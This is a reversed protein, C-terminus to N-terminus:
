QNRDTIIEGNQEVGRDLQLMCNGNNDIDLIRCVTHQYVSNKYRKVRFEEHNRYGCVILLQGRALWSSDIPVQKGNQNETLVQKYWSYQGANFKVNIVELDPTLLNVIHKTDDKDVVVGCIQSVHYQHWTRKGRTRTIFQPTEPLDAFHSLGYKDYDINFLEHQGYHYFSTAEFSWKNINEHGVDCGLRHQYEQEFMALNYQALVNPKKLWTKLIDLEPKIAKELAKDVIVIRDDVYYWDKNETMRSQLHEEFWPQAQTTELIYHKKTKHIPDACFFFQKQTVFQKFRYIRWANEDECQIGLNKCQELNALTLSAKTPIITSVYLKALRIRDKELEDFCGAKILKIVKSPKLTTNKGKDQLMNFFSDLTYPRNEIIEQAVELGIGSIGGLGFLIANESEVPTFSIDSHNISPPKVAVKFAQSRYIAKAIKGYAVTDSTESTSNVSLTACNWYCHPYFHYLNMEQLAEVSYPMVHNRSFSYSLQPMLCENWVYDALNSDKCHAYFEKKFEPIQELKKKALIKRMADSQKLTFGSVEPRMVLEMIDEQTNAVGYCHDLTEHLAQIVNEDTVGYRQLEQEWLNNNAKYRIFKDIPQEGEKSVIRMLSNANSLEYLNHPQIKQICQGGVPTIFQFLDIIEGRCCENWMEQNDYDLVDPHLYQDYTDRISGQWKIKDYQLLLSMCTELKDQCETTLSDYKLGGCYDSDEMNWATVYDGRPTIMLSNQEIYGNKFIYIGSAHTSIGSIINEIQQIMHFLDVNYEQSLINIQNQFEAVPKKDTGSDGNMCENLTWQKGREVPVLSALYEAENIDIDLGRCITKIVSKSTETRFTCINLINDEGFVEKLKAIIKPRNQASTDLDVDPFSVRSSNLHRYAPLNWKIPNMQHMDILYMTYYGTVSGRSVGVFGITWCLDVIYDVLNYYASMRDQLSESVKWLEGLEWDIREINEANFEQKKELFGQEIMYLLYRDQIYASNAYLNINPCREYWDQFINGVKFRVQSLDREPIITKHQMDINQVNQVFKVGNEIITDFDDKSIYDKVLNWKEEYGMMYCSAYFAETEGRDSDRANLFAKHVLVDQQKLYHCDTTMICPIGYHKSLKLAFKNFEVQDYGQVEPKSPQLEIVFNEKGFTNVCWNLFNHIPFKDEHQKTQLYYLSTIGLEGGLCATSALLHGKDEGIINELQQKDILTRRLRGTMWSNLWCQTDIQRLQKYGIEDKAILIFHPFKTVGGQYTEKTEEVNDVLYIEDGLLFQFDIGQEVLKKQFQMIKVHASISSHDTIAIQHIHLDLARNVIQMLNKEKKVQIICDLMRENSYETHFHLSTDRM